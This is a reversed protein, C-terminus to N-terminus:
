SLAENLLRTLVDEARFYEEAIRVAARSHTEFDRTIEEVCAVAEEPTSFPLIGKGTEICCGFGTDQVVVPRGAALYCSSRCSFWGSRSAVYANKAMSLEAMSSQIYDRYLFPTRSLAFADVLRWGNDALLDKPPEGGGLALELPQKTRSPLDLFRLFEVNKGEYATGNVVPGKEKPKWSLVTTFISRSPQRQTKWLDLVMPQRTPLWNFLDTPVLCDPNGINEGFSFFVDHLLLRDINDRGVDNVQGSVYDPVDAQTYLPDSDILIKVPIRLYEERLMSSASINIFVDARSCLRQLQKFTLGHCDGTPGIVCFNNKLSPAVKMFFDRIYDANATVDDTFTLRNPDFMWGGTDELYYVEHGLRSLGIVYQLYDWAVGGLPYTAAYGTVLIVRKKM